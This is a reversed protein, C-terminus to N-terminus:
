SVLFMELPIGDIGPAKNKKMAKMAELIEEETMLDDIALDDEEVVKGSSISKMIQRMKMMRVRSTGQKLSDGFKEVESHFKDYEPLSKEAENGLKEFYQRWLERYHEGELFEEQTNEDVISPLSRRTHKVLGIRKLGKWFASADNTEM